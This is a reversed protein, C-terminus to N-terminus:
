YFIKIPNKNIRYKVHHKQNQMVYLLGHKIFM